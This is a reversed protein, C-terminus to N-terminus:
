PTTLWYCGPPETLVRPDFLACSAQGLIKGPDGTGSAPPDDCSPLTVPDSTIPGPGRNSAWCNGDGEEDWWFDEGNPLVAGTPSLGMVNGVFKNGNSTDRLNRPDLELRLPAPLWFLRVGSRHNDYILNDRIVNDNGGAIQIGTGVPAAWYPCAIYPDRDSWPKSCEVDHADDFVNLNNSFFENGEFRACDQPMGPHASAVSDTSLGTANHHFRSKHVWVANAGTGSYGYTNGYSEVERMEISPPGCDGDLTHSDATSGPYLGAHGNNYTVVRNYLGNDTTFTLVGYNENYRAVVDEIRFGSTEIVNVGNFKAFQVTFNGLYVGHARDVHVIDYKADSERSGEIIVDEPDDGTGEIQLFCRDCAGDGDPDDVVSVLNRANPCRRQYEYTAVRYKEPAEKRADGHTTTTYLAACEATESTARSEPEEYRGPVILIRDHSTAADVADQISDFECRALLSISRGRAAGHVRERIWRESEPQCAILEDGGRTRYEPVAIEVTPFTTKREPHADARDASLLLVGGLMALGLLVRRTISVLHVGPASM